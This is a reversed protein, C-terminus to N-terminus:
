ETATVQRARAQAQMTDSPSLGISFSDLVYVANVGARQRTVQVVDFAEHAPNPVATWSMAEQTGLQLRLRKTAVSAAKATTTILPSSYFSPRKGFPGLYYTPSAEDVDWADSRVPKVLSTGEGTVICGNRLEQVTLQRTASLLVGGDGETYTASPQDTSPDPPEAITPVGLPDFYLLLGQSSCLETADAWPDSSEGYDTVVAAGVSSVATLAVLDPCQPWRNKLLVEVATDLMTASSIKYPDTWSARRVNESRDFGEISVTVGDAQDEVTVDNFGFTGLPALETTGDPLQVGRWPRLEKGYPALLDTDTKPVLAPDNFSVTMTRRTDRNGDVSVSGSTPVVTDIVEGNDLVDLRVVSTHSQQVLQLFTPSVDYV